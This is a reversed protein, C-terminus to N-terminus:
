ALDVKDRNIKEDLIKERINEQAQKLEEYNRQAVQSKVRQHGFMHGIQTCIVILPAFSAAGKAMDKIPSPFKSAFKSARNLLESNNLVKRAKIAASVATKDDISNIIKSLAKIGAKDVAALVGFGAVFTAISSIVPNNKVIDIKTALYDKANWLLGLAALGVGWAATHKAFQLTRLARINKAGFAEVVGSTYTRALASLGGALPLTLFLANDLRRHKKDNVDHSAKAWAISKLDRDKLSAYLQEQLSAKFAPNNANSSSLVSNVQM